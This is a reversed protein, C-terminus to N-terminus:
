WSFLSPLSPPIMTGWFFTNCNRLFILIIMHDLLKQFSVQVSMQVDINMAANNMIASLPLLSLTWWCISLCYTTYINLPINDAKFLFLIKFMFVISLSIICGYFFCIGTIGSVRLIWLLCVSVSLVLFPFPPHLCQPFPLIALQKTLATNTKALCCLEPSQNCM